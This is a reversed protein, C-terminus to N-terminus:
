YSQIHRRDRLARYAGRDDAMWLNIADVNESSAFDGRQCDIMFNLNARKHFPAINTGCWVRALGVDAGCGLKQASLTPM